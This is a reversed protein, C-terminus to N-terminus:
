WLNMLKGPLSARQCPSVPEGEVGPLEFPHPPSYSMSKVALVAAACGWSCLGDMSGM